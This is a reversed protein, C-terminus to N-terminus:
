AVAEELRKLYEEKEIEIGGMQQLFPNIYQTDLLTFGNNNLLKVLYYLAVKSANPVLHFMSEGSFLRKVAVGYLGGVLKKNEFVELSHAFGMHHLGCYTEVIQESIWTQERTEGCKRVVEEFSTDVKIEFKNRNLINRLSSSVKLGDLPIIGRLEPEYWDIRGSEEADAMPFIGKYIGQLVTQPSLWEDM